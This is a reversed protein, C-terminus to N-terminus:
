FDLSKQKKDAIHMNIVERFAEVLREEDPCQYILVCSVNTVKGFWIKDLSSYEKTGLYGKYEFINNM